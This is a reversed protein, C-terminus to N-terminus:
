LLYLIGISQIGIYCYYNFSYSNTKRPSGTHDNGNFGQQSPPPSPSREDQM